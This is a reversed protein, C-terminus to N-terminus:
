SGDHEHSHESRVQACAVVAATKGCGPPGSLALAVEGARSPPAAARNRGGGYGDDDDDVIWSDSNAWSPMSSEDVM